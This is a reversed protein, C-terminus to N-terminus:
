EDQEETEGPALVFNNEADVKELGDEINRAFQRVTRIFTERLIGDRFNLVHDFCLRNNRVFATSLFNSSNLENATELKQILSVSSRFDTHTRFGIFGADHYISIWFPYGESVYISKDDELRHKIVGRELELSLAVSSVDKEEILTTM